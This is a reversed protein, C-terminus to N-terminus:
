NSKKEMMLESIVELREAIKKGKETPKLVCLRFVTNDVFRVERHSTILQKSELTRRIKFATTASVGLLHAVEGLDIHESSGMALLM